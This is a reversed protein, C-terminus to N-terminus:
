QYLAVRGPAKKAELSALGDSLYDAVWKNVSRRSVKLSLAIQTRNKGELFHSLALLRLREPANTEAKSLALLHQPTDLKLHFIPDPLNYYM